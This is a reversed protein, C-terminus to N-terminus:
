GILHRDSGDPWPVRQEIEFDEEGDSGIWRSIYREASGYDPGVDEYNMWVTDCEDCLFSRLGLSKIKIRYLAGQGCYPCSM